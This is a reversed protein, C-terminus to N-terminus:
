QEDAGADQSGSYARMVEAYLRMTDLWNAYATNYAAFQRDAFLSELHTRLQVSGERLQDLLFCFHEDSANKSREHQIHAELADKVTPIDLLLRAAIEQVHMGQEHYAIMTELTEQSVM